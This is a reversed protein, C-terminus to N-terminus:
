SHIIFFAKERKKDVTRLQNELSIIKRQLKEWERSFYPITELQKETYEILELLRCHRSELFELDQEAQKIKENKVADRASKWQNYNFREIDEPRTFDSTNVTENDQLTIFKYDGITDRDFSAIKTGDYGFVVYNKNYQGITDADKIIQYLDGAPSFLFLIRKM